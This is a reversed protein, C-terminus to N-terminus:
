AGGEEHGLIIGISLASVALLILAPAAARAFFAEATASWIQTALTTFGTPGLLLTAPLEKMTALFVLAAGSLIGPRLLPLTIRGLTRSRSAGLSRAAEELRPSIQLLSTRVNGTAQPLFRVVYAFILMALTQYLFPAYNAGFFVLSLAIVVGPLGYALYVSQSVLTSYRSPFRVALYSVPLALLIAAMAALAAARLSNITAMWAPLLSEGAMLGRILWYIVVSLPLILAATVVLGSFVLAPWKMRGLKAMPMVRAAGVSTRYFHRQRGQARQAAFLILITIAVLVLSLLAAYSRDFSSLYQIYIARTFSNFRLISVAGFDSLVYLAVLLSGAVMSPRLAPLTVRRFTPWPGHGLNRAAEELAPDMNRLGARISLLLYPYTFLTLAWVAGTLGYISPLRQIGLPELWGQLMGRPGMMAVLAYGGVYSPFVLPLATLVSWLRRAPLDTRTTLWALPLSILLSFFTVLLTLLVSNAMIRATSPRFLLDFAETGVGLARFILYVLPLLMAAAILGALAHLLFRPGSVGTRAWRTVDDDRRGPSGPPDHPPNHPRNLRNTGPFAM